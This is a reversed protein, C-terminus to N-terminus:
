RALVESVVRLAHAVGRGFDRSNTAYEAPDIQQVRQACDCRRPPKGRALPAPLMISM